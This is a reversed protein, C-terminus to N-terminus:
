TQVLSLWFTMMHAHSEFQREYTYRFEWERRPIFNIPAKRFLIRYYWLISIDDCIFDNICLNIVQITRIGDIWLSSNIRPLRSLRPCLYSLTRIPQFIVFQRIPRSNWPCVYTMLCAPSCWQVRFSLFCVFISFLANQCIFTKECLSLFKQLMFGFSQYNWSVMLDTKWVFLEIKKWPKLSVLNCFFHRLWLQIPSDLVIRVLHMASSRPPHPEMLLQSPTQGFNRIQNEIAQSVFIHDNFPLQNAIWSFTFPSGSCGWTNSIQDVM